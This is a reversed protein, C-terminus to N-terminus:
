SKIKSVLFIKLPSRNCSSFFYFHLKQLYHLKKFINNNKSMNLDYEPKDLENKSKLTNFLEETTSIEWLKINKNFIPTFGEKHAAEENGLFFYIIM